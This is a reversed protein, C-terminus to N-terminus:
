YSAPVGFVTTLVVYYNSSGANKGNVTFRLKHYGVSGVTLTFTKIVNVAAGVSYWDQGVGAGGVSVGDLSWDIKGYSNATEGECSVTFTTAVPFFIGIDAYQGNAPAAQYITYGYNRAADHFYTTAVSWKFTDIFVQFPPTKGGYLDADIQHRRAKHTRIWEEAALLRRVTQSMVGDKRIDKQLDITM